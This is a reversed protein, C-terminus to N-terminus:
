TMRLLKSKSGGVWQVQNEVFKAQYRKLGEEDPMESKMEM